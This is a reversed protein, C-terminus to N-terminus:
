RRPSRCASRPARPAAGRRCARHPRPRDPRRSSRHAAEPRGWEARTSHGLAGRRGLPGGAPEPNDRALLLLLHPAEVRRTGDGEDLLAGLLQGELDAQSARVALRDIQTTPATLLLGAFGPWRRTLSSRDPRRREDPDARCGSGRRGSQRGSQLQGSGTSVWAWYFPRLFPTMHRLLLRRATFADRLRQQLTGVNDERVDALISDAKGNFADLVFAIATERRNLEVHDCTAALGARAMGRSTDRATKLLAGAKTYGLQEALEDIATSTPVVYRDGYGDIINRM